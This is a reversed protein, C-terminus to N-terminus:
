KKDNGLERIGIGYLNENGYKKYSSESKEVETLGVPDVEGIYTGLYQDTALVVMDNFHKTFSKENFSKKHKHARILNKLHDKRQDNVKNCTDEIIKDTNQYTIKLITPIALLQKSLNSTSIEKIESANIQKRIVSFIRDANATTIKDILATIIDNTNIDEHSDVTFTLASKGGKNEPSSIKYSTQNDFSEIGFGRFISDFDFKGKFDIGNPKIKREKVSRSGDLNLM